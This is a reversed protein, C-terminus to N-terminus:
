EHKPAVARSAAEIAAKAENVVGAAPESIAREFTIEALARELRGMEAAAAEGAWHRLLRIKEFDQIGERLREFRISSRGGPYVVFCDGSAWTVHKTDYLPDETWSDYAWRLFGTMGRGAAHLGMWASEAPPSNTFTNPRGPVCCVYFTTALDGSAEARETAIETDLPPTIYVCWDDIEGKLVPLNSGALAIRLEPAVRHILDITPRMMELPREDMAIATRELWGKERLHDTFAKLFPTWLKVFTADGAKFDIYAHDGTAAERYRVRNTWPVMSYCNIWDDLGCTAGFEVYRDFVSFDYEWSGDEHRVWEVMSDYPDFTQTGWPRHIITTTLCKQGADALLQLHPRLLDFHAPSWLEVHHYRAVAYPNQWLDLHFSWAEPEPLTLPLVELEVDFTLRVGGAARVVVEGRYLGPKANAPTDISVWIPRATQAPLTLRTADDLVDAVLETDALVYRVFRPRVASAPITRGGPGTLDSTELRVQALEETTWALLQGHVREGRWATAEWTRHVPDLGPVADREYRRDLSAVAGHLGPRVAGWAAQRDAEAQLIAPDLDYAQIEVVHGGSGDGASNRTFTTRLYRVTTPDFTFLEGAATAPTTNRTQDVLLCWTDGDASGELRYQYFRQNDWYTWLRIASIPRVEGLDVTLDVPINEAAWHAGAADHRGDVAFSPARDSWHPSGSVANRLLLNQEARLAAPPDPEHQPNALRDRAFTPGHLGTVLLLALLLSPRRTPFM